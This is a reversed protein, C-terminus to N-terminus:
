LSRFHGSCKMENSNKEMKVNKKNGYNCSSKYDFMNKKWISFLISNLWRFFFSVHFKNKTAFKFIWLFIKLLSTKKQLQILKYAFLENTKPHPFFPNTQISYFITTLHFNNPIQFTKTSCINSSIYSSSQVTKFIKSSLPKLWSIKHNEINWVEKFQM